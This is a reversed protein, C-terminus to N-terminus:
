EKVYKMFGSSYKKTGDKLVWMAEVGPLADIFELGQEYPMNFVATSLADAYGSDATIITVATMFGAPFLTDPDIIHHYKKGDVIYFREYDGSSVVSLEDINVIHLNPGQPEPNQIAVNWLTGDGKNGLARVNGGVSILANTFGNEKATEAVREVAYGKAVAGVDLRMQPDSLFVTSNEEDIIIDNIDTHESADALEQVSPLKASEPDDIGSTRYDHWIKLVAGFAVNVKGGTQEYLTKAFKLLDIIRQDVKVPSLGANDNITKLNNVGEYDNYIDYLEHYEKLNDYVLTSFDSFEDKTKMYSVLTTITDFLVLFQAEYRNTKVLSCSSMNFLILIAILVALVKKAM